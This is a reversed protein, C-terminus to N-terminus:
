HRCIRLRVGALDDVGQRAVAEHKIVLPAGVLAIPVGITTADCDREMVSSIRKRNAFNAGHDLGPLTSRRHGGAGTAWVLGM